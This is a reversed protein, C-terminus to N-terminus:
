EKVSEPTERKEEESEFLADVREQWDEKDTVGKLEDKVQEAQAPKIKPQEAQQKRETRRQRDKKNRQRRREAEAQDVGSAEEKKTQAKCVADFEDLSLRAIATQQSWPSGVCWMEVGKWIKSTRVDNLKQIMNKLRPTVYIRVDNPVGRKVRTSEDRRKESLPLPRRSASSREPHSGVYYYHDRMAYCDLGFIFFKRFGMYRAMELAGIM